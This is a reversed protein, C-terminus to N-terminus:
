SCLCEKSQQLCSTFRTKTEHSLIDISYLSSVLLALLPSALVLSILQAIIPGLGESDRLVEVLKHFFELPFTWSLVDTVLQSGCTTLLTHYHIDVTKVLNCVGWSTGGRGLALYMLHTSCKQITSCTVTDEHQLMVSWHYCAVVM